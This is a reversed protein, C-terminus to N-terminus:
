KVCIIVITKQTVKQIVLELNKGNKVFATVDEESLHYTVWTQAHVETLATLGYAELNCGLADCV